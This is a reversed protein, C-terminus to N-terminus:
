VGSPDALSCQMIVVDLWRGFKLGVRELTGVLRFGQSAHLAISGANGSDGIVALIERVGAARCIDILATLLQRGVGRGQRDAAVYVSDEVTFRYASRTRFLGAYAYGAIGNDDEAVLYPLGRGTVDQYRRTMEELDPPTEEFSGTGTLVHHAYIAQIAPLDAPTAPRITLM